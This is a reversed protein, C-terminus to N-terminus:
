KGIPDLEKQEIEVSNASTKSLLSYVMDCKLKLQHLQARIFSHSLYNDQEGLVSYSTVLTKVIRYLTHLYAISLWDYSILPNREAAIEIIFVNGKLKM